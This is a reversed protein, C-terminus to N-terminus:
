PTAAKENVTPAVLAHLADEFKVLDKPIGDPTLFYGEFFIGPTHKVGLLKGALFDQEVAKWNASNSFSDKLDQDGLGLASALEL